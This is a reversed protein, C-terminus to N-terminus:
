SRGEDQMKRVRVAEAHLMARYYMFRQDYVQNLVDLYAPDVGPFTRVRSPNDLYAEVFAVPDEIVGKQMLTSWLHQTTTVLVNILALHNIRDEELSAIRRQLDLMEIAM